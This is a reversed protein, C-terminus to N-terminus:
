KINDWLDSLRKEKIKKLRKERQPEDLISDIAKNAPENIKEEGTGLRSNIRDLSIKLESITNKMELLGMQNKKIYKIKRRNRKISEKLYKYM